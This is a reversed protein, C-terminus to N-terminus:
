AMDVFNPDNRATFDTDSHEDIAIEARRPDLMKVKRYVEGSMRDEITITNACYDVDFEASGQAYQLAMNYTNFCKLTEGKPNFDIIDGIWTWYNSKEEYYLYDESVSVWFKNPLQFDGIESTDIKKDKM